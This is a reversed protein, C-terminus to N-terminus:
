IQYLGKNVFHASVEYTKYNFKYVRRNGFNSFNVLVNRRFFPKINKNCYFIKRIVKYIKYIKPINM